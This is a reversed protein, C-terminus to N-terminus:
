TPFCWRLSSKGRRWSAAAAALFEAWSQNFM